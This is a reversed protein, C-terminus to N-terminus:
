RAGRDTSGCICSRPAAHHHALVVWSPFSPYIGLPQIAVMTGPVTHLPIGEKRWSAPLVNVVNIRGGVWGPLVNVVNVRVGGM